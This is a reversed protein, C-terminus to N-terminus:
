CGLEEELEDEDNEMWDMKSLYGARVLPDLIEAPGRIEAWHEEGCANIEKCDKISEAMKNCIEAAKQYQDALARLAYAPPGERLFMGFDDGVKYCPLCLEYSEKKKNMIKRESVNLLKM